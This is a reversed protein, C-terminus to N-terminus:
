PRNTFDFIGFYEPRHYDPVATPIPNWTLYHPVPLDDGCKQLNGKVQKGDLSLAPHHWFATYPIMVTLQWPSKGQVADFPITGLSSLRKVRSTIEPLAVERKNRDAGFGLLLTGLANFEFNYYTGDGSPDIFLEVCSDKYVGQNDVTFTARTFDEQVYFKLLLGDKIRVLKFQVVPKAPYERPWNICDINHTQITTSDLLDSVSALSSVISITALFPVHLINM